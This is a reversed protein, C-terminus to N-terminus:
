AQADEAASVRYLFYVGDPARYLGTLGNSLLYGGGACCVPIVPADQLLIAEADHLYADRVEPSVAAGAANLLIDFADSAYGSPNEPNASHWRDLFAGADSYAASIEQAAMFFSEKVPTDEEEGSAEGSDTEEGSEPEEPSATLADYEEQSLGRVTVTVGLERKWMAQLANAVARGTESEVYVYEVAPFGTGNPYGAQSMLQRAQQCDEEYGSEAPATVKELSHTRFDWCVPADEPKTDVSVANPDPLAPEEEASEEVVPRDGYDSVGYPVIGAAARVAPGAAAAAAQNDVALRFALRVDPNDFPAQLTNLLVATVTTKPEPTWTGAPSLEQLTAASLETLLVREGNQLKEYDADPGESRVFRLTEPGLDAKGYYTDSRELIALGNEFQVATYAGNTVSGDSVPTERVPMTYAGACLEELFWACSGNLTVTFTRADPASVALLSPDGTEQVQSYGSVVSLLERHPLNNAPDALRRWARAFDEASVSQGDSWSADERLTFTYTANGAFDTELQYSEAQGPALAAWGSGSDEWRMLNEFLHFLITEGGQATVKAPDLTDQEERLPVTLSLPASAEGEPYSPAEGGNQGGCAALLSVSALLAALLNRYRKLM